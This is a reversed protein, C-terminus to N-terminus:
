KLDTIEFLHSSQPRIIDVMNVYNWKKETKRLISMPNEGKPYVRFIANIMGYCNHEGIRSPYFMVITGYDVNAISFPESKVWKSVYGHPDLKPATNM